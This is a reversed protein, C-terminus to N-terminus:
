ETKNFEVLVTDENINTTSFLKYGTAFNGLGCYSYNLCNNTMYSTKVSM